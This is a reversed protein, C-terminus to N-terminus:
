QEKEGMNRIVNRAIMELEYRTDPKSEARYAVGLRECFKEIPLIGQYVDLTLRQFYEIVKM